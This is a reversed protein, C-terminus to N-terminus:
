KNKLAESKESNNITHIRALIKKINRIKSTGGKSASARAKILEMKLEGIKKEREEIKLERIQKPKM